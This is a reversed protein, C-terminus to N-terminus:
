KNRGLVMLMNRKKLYPTFATSFQVLVSGNVFIRPVLFGTNDTHSLQVGSLIVSGIELLAFLLLQQCSLLCIYIIDKGFLVFFFSLSYLSDLNRWHEMHFSKRFIVVMKFSYVRRLLTVKYECMDRSTIFPPTRSIWWWRTPLSGPTLTMERFTFCVFFM